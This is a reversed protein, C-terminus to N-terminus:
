SWFLEGAYCELRASAKSVHAVVSSHIKVSCFSRAEISIFSNKTEEGPQFKASYPDVKYRIGKISAVQGNRSPINLRDTQQEVGFLAGPVSLHKCCLAFVKEKLM